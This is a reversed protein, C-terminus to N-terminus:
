VYKHTYIYIHIYVFIIYPTSPQLQLGFVSSGGKALPVLSTKKMCRGQNQNAFCGIRTVSYLSDEVGSELSWVGSKDGQEELSRVM